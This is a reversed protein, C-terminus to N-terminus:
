KEVLIALTTQNDEYPTGKVDGYVNCVKFGADTVEKILSHMTFYTTWLNYTAMTQETFITTQELTVNDHYKCYRHLAIHPARNWFGGEPYSQWTQIEKFDIFKKTSFVDLLMKKTPKLHHYLKKLLISRENKTLAGYDCYIITILDYEKQLHIQLYDEYLYNIPLNQKKASSRGYEISRKSFDIGTVQYGLRAFKEAYIGPGCGVDLLLPNSTPPIMQHIWAVSEDIFKKTRSAGEINPNLHAKLMQKSIHTDNWFATTTKEYLAPPTLLKKLKEQM